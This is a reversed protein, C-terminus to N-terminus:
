DQQKNWQALVWKAQIYQPTEEGEWSEIVAALANFLECRATDSLQLDAQLEYIRDKLKETKMDM